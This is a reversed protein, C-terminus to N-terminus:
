SKIAEFAAEVADGISVGKLKPKAIGLSQRQRDTMAIILAEINLGGKSILKISSGFGLDLGQLFPMVKVEGIPRFWCPRGNLAYTRIWYEPNDPSGVRIVGLLDRQVASSHSVIVRYPRKGYKLSIAIYEICGFCKPKLPSDVDVWHQCVDM